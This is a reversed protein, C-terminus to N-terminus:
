SRLFDHFDRLEDDSPARNFCICVTRGSTDDVDRVVGRVKLADPPVQLEQLKLEDILGVTNRRKQVRAVDRANRTICLAETLGM